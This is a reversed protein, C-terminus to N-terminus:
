QRRAIEILEGLIRCTDDESLAHRKVLGKIFFEKFLRMLEPHALMIESHGAALDYDTDAETMLIGLEDYLTIEADRLMGDDKLFYIHFFPNRQQQRLLERLITVREQPTYPRMAWFHDSTRGTLAFKRMASRKMIAHAPQRKLFTNQFRRDYIGYLAQVVDPDLEGEAMPGEMLAAALIQVPIWDVGPDPKIKWIARNKELEAYDHSFQVYDEFASCHIYTRKLQTYLERKPNLTRAFVDHNGCQVLLTGECRDTFVIVDESAEGDPSVYDVAMMDAKMVGKPATADDYPTNMYTYGSYRTEYFIPMLSNVACVTKAANGDSCIYHEVTVDERQLLSRLISFIAVSHCNLLTIRVNKMRGYRQLLDIPEGTIADTVSLSGESPNAGGRVFRWMEEEALYATKGRITIQVARTLGAREEDTLCFTKKMAAEFQLVSKERSGDEMLRVLSTKSRYGLLEALRSMSLERSSMFQTIYGRMESM